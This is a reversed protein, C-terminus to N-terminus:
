CVLRWRKTKGPIIYKGEADVTKLGEPLVGESKFIRKITNREVEISGVFTNGNEMDIITGDKIIYSGM